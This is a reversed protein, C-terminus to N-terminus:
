VLQSSYFDELGIKTEADAEDTEIYDIGTIQKVSERAWEMIDRSRTSINPIDGTDLECKYIYVQNTQGLRHIRSVAQSLLYSRFVSNVLIVKDAMVLPVGTSLTAYTTILPDYDRKDFMEITKDLEKSNDAFATLPKLGRETAIDRLTKVVDVFSTFILTKKDTRDVIEELPIFPSM